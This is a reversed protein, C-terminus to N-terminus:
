MPKRPLIREIAVESFKDESHHQLDMESREKHLFVELRVAWTILLFLFSVISEERQGCNGVFNFLDM